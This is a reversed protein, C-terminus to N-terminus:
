IPFTNTIGILPNNHLYPKSPPHGEIKQRRPTKPIAQLANHITQVATLLNRFKNSVTCFITINYRRRIYNMHVPFAEFADIWLHPLFVIYQPSGPVILKILRKFQLHNLENDFKFPVLVVSSVCLTLVLLFIGKTLISVESGSQAM